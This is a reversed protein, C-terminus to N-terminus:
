SSLAPATDSRLLAHLAPRRQRTTRWRRLHFHHCPSERTDALFASRSGGHGLSHRYSRRLHTKQVVKKALSESTGTQSGWVITVSSEPPFRPTSSPAASREQIQFHRCAPPSTLRKALRNARHSHPQLHSRSRPISIVHHQHQIQLWSSNSRRSRFAAPSTRRLIRRRHPQRPLITSLKRSPSPNRLVPISKWSERPRRGPDDDM